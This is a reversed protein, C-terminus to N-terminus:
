RILFPCILHFGKKLEVDEAAADHRPSTKVFDSKDRRLEFLSTPLGARDFSSPDASRMGGEVKRMGFEANWMGCEVNGFGL